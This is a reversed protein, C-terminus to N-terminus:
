DITCSDRFPKDFVGLSADNIIRIICDSEYRFSLESVDLFVYQERRVIFPFPHLRFKLAASRNSVIAGQKIDAIESRNLGFAKLAKNTKAMVFEDFLFVHIDIDGLDEIEMPSFRPDRPVTEGGFTLDQSFEFEDSLNFAVVPKFYKYHLDSATDSFVLVLSYGFALALLALYALLVRVFIRSIM